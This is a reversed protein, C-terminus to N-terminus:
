ALIERLSRIASRERDIVTERQVGMAVAVEAVTEERHGIGYRRRITEEEDRPLRALALTVDERMWASAEDDVSAPDVILGLFDEDDSDRRVQRALLRCAAVVRGNRPPVGTKRSAMALSLENSPIHVLSEQDSIARHVKARIVKDALAALQGARPDFKALADCMADLGDILYDGRAIRDWPLLRQRVCREMIRLVLRRHVWAALWTEPDHQRAKRPM